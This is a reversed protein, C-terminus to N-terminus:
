FLSPQHAPRRGNLLIFPTARAPTIGLRRPDAMDKLPTHRRTNLIANVSKPGFGPIRLLEQRSARNLEVPNQTLHAQAWAVKPDVNVPLNGDAGFPLDELTFGYDRLLYSSQYLRHERQAPTPAQNELPTDPVPSFASFYARRLGLQSYLYETTSLLEVDSEGAGGAVFQTVSSPWRGNWGRAPLDNSRIEQVWRLPQLLEETFEKRPALKLLRATNPAELNVSVRDALQMTRAVQDREAGPMIKLHLYGRYGYKRRLIEATDILKDQTRVGGAVIGSSLFLGEVLGARHLNMFTSAMEAPRLTSRRYNRGARFPCYYCNRECASTLLTKLLKVRKGGPLVADHVMGTVSSAAPIQPCGADEAPELYMQSSLAQLKDLTDM